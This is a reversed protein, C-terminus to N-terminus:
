DAMVFWNSGDSQLIFRQYAITSTRTPNGDITAGAGNIVMPNLTTDIKKVMIKKGLVPAPLDITVGGASADVLITEDTPVATYNATETRLASVSANIQKVVGTADITLHMDTPAGTQVGELRLPDTADAVHLQNTPTATGVGVADGLHYIDETNSTAGMNDDTGFWPENTAALSGADVSHVVGTGDITLVDTDTAAQVGELRLPDAADVIHMRNTPLNTGVGIQGNDRIAFDTNPRVTTEDSLFTLFRADDMADANTDYSTFEIGSLPDWTMTTPNWAYVNGNGEDVYINGPMGAGTPPGIATITTPYTTMTGDESTYTHTGDGNDVLTTVTENAAIMAAIDLTTSVGDEDVYTVTGAVPDSSITTVTEFNDIVVELDIATNVGDEDTYQLTHGDPLLQLVTLTEAGAIVSVDLFAGGDAGPVILNASDSDVVDITTVIGDENTYTADGTTDDQTLTTVTENAAIMTAIDLTTSVGDEDVYTVTGAVPDSSITTVTEFNDIVIELDIATNVGDEDTYQLTHGDPLLQLVTLTEAGAIVSADLFAGGDAGPVILNASDSDVVDITTVIGDENTYTADGTTDDQTLTTVTENAAIMTAIDLTTSVGDEDVYTITGAVPDSSITTLTEFNDIVTELDISTINGDEDQYQLTHGDASLSLITLTEAGTIVSADLYAGGDAGPVILNNSDSDVVDITTVVGDENTYTADGTTDDQTLTTTTEQAAILASLDLSTPNGDEDVYTITGASPDISITTLTEFNDIVTELDIQTVGGDEDTYELTHGDASLTLFTLTENADIMAALDLVTAVGNEDIYTITGANIDQSISTLTEFLSVDEMTALRQWKAGDWYHYGPTLDGSSATNFVFLSNVNGNSITTIDTSSTLAVRPLLVGKNNAVVDLQASPDPLPTGVGVQAYTTGIFVLFLLTIIKKM